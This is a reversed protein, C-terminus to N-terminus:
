QVPNWVSPSVIDGSWTYLALLPAAGARMAHPQNADHLIFAGPPRAAGNWEAAGTLVHYLEVAPHSHSAYHAHPGILTLGLCVEDSHFPAAPGVFEAWGMNRHLDPLDDRPAYGYRWPLGEALPRLAAAIDPADRDLGALTAALHQTLPHATAVYDTQEVSARDLLAQVHAAEAAAPGEARELRDRLRRVLDALGVSM